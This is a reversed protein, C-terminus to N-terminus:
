INSRRISEQFEQKGEHRKRMHTQLDFSSGYNRNCKECFVSNTPKAKKGKYQLLKIPQKPLEEQEETIEEDSPLQWADEPDEKITFKSDEDENLLQFESGVNEKLRFPIKRKRKSKRLNRSNGEDQSNYDGTYGSTWEVGEAETTCTNNEAANEEEIKSINLRRLKVTLKKDKELDSYKSRWDSQEPAKPNL